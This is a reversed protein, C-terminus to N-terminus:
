VTPTVFPDSRSHGCDLAEHVLDDAKAAQESVSPRSARLDALTLHALLIRTLGFSHAPIGLGRVVFLVRTASRSQQSIV